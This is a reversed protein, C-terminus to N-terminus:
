ENIEFERLIYKFRRYRSYMNHAWKEALDDSKFYFKWSITRYNRRDVNDEFCACVWFLFWRRQLLFGKNSHIIRFKM